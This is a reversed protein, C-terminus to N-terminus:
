RPRVARVQHGEGTLLQAISQESDSFSAASEDISGATTTASALEREEGECGATDGHGQANALLGSASGAESRDGQLASWSDEGDGSAGEGMGGPLGLIAGQLASSAAEGPDFASVVDDGTQNFSPDTGDLVDAGLQSLVDSGFGAAAGGLALGGLGSLTLDAGIGGGAAIAVEAADTVGDGGLQAANLVTLAAMLGLQVWHEHQAHELKDSYDRLERAFETLSAGTTGLITSPSDRSRSEWASRFTTAAAGTWAQTLTVVADDLALTAKTYDANIGDVLGAIQRIRGPDGPPGTFFGGIDGLVNRAGTLLFISPDAAVPM